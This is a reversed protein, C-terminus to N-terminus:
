KWDDLAKPAFTLHVGLAEGNSTLDVQQIDRIFYKALGLIYRSVLEHNNDVSALLIRSNVFQEFSMGAQSHFDSILDDPCIKNSTGKPRGAGERAGGRNSAKKTYKRKSKSDVSEKETIVEPM